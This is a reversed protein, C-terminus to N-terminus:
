HCTIGDISWAHWGIPVLLLFLLLLLRPFVNRTDWLPNGIGFGIAAVLLNLGLLYLAPITFLGFVLLFGGILETYSTFVAALVTLAKPIGKRSFGEQYTAISKKLGIRVVADFGQFLFLFGLFVRAIAVAALHHYQDILEM